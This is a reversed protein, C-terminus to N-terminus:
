KQILHVDHDGGHVGVEILSRQLHGVAQEFGDVVRISRQDAMGGAANKEAAVSVAEIEVGHQAGGGLLFYGHFQVGIRVPQIQAIAVQAARFFQAYLDHDVGVRVVGSVHFLNAVSDDLGAAGPECVIVYEVRQGG